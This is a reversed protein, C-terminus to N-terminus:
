SSTRRTPSCFYGTDGTLSVAQAAGGLTGSTWTVQARFRNGAVCLVPGATCTGTVNATAATVGDVKLAYSGPGVELLGGHQLGGIGGISASSGTWGYALTSNSPASPSAGVSSPSPVVLLAGEHPSAIQVNPSAIGGRATMLSNLQSANAGGPMRASDAYVLSGYTVPNFRNGDYLVRNQLGGSSGVDWINLGQDGSFTSGSVTGTVDRQLTADSEPSTFISAGHSATEPSGAGSAWRNNYFRSGTVTMNSGINTLAGGWLVASDGAFTTRLIRATSEQLLLIGGGQSGQVTVNSNLVMSDELDLDALNAAIAGGMTTANCDSFATGHIVVQARNDAPSGDLPVGTGGYQRATDGALLLCAGIASPTQVESGGEILSGNIVLRVPRRNIAGGNTSTDPFDASLASIAGGAMGGPKALTSQNGRLVSGDIELVSRYGDIAGGVDARNLVLLSQQLTLNTLDEAHIAGGTTPSSGGCCPDAVAQNAQFTSNAITVNSGLSWTGIAYVAGAWSARRTTRSFRAPSTRRRMSCTSPAVPPTRRTVPFTPATQPPVPRGARRSRLGRARRHRRGLQSGLKDQFSSNVFTASSADLVGVAGGGTAPLASRNNLFACNHFEAHARTLTVGGTSSIDTTFGNQFTINEFVVSQGTNQVIRVLSRSGGGDLVVTAGAAARVVFSKRANANKVSFGSAPTAYTGAAMEITGGASVTQIAADLTAADQPVRVLNNAALLPSVSCCVAVALALIAQADFVSRRSDGLVVM